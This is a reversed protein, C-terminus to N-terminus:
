RLIIHKCAGQSLLASLGETKGVIFENFFSKCTQANGLIVDQLLTHADLPSENGPGSVDSRADAM